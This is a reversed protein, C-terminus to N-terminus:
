STTTLDLLEMVSVNIKKLSIISRPLLLLVTNKGSSACLNQSGKNKDFQLWQHNKLNIIKNTTTYHYDQFQEKKM